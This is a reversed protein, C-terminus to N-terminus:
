NFPEFNDCRKIEHLVCVGHCDTISVVLRYVGPLLIKWYEGDKTTNFANDRGSVILTANPIPKGTSRSTVVGKVGRHSQQMWTVLPQFLSSSDKLPFHMPPFRQYWTTRNTKLINIKYLFIDVFMERVNAWSNEMNRYFHYFGFDSDTGTIFYRSLSVMLNENWHSELFSAPPYKCCSMELTIELCGHWAYNYDQMSGAHFYIM